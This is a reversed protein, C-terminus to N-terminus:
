VTSRIVKQPKLRLGLEPSFHSLELNLSMKYIFANQSKEITKFINSSLVEPFDQIAPRFQLFLRQPKAHGSVLDPRMMSTWPCQNQARTQSVARAHGAQHYAAARLPQRQSPHSGGQARGAVWADRGQAVGTDARSVCSVM